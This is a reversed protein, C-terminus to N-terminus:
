IYEIRIRGGCQPCKCINNNKDIWETKEDLYVVYRCHQCEVSNLLEDGGEIIFDFIDSNSM